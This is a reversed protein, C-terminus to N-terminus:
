ALADRKNERVYKIVVHRYPGEGVSETKVNPDTSLFSHVLMREYASMPSMEVDYQFLRAREALMRTKLRLEEIKHSHYGNVDLLFQVEEGEKAKADVMKKVLFNLARLSEGRPGILLRSDKSQVHFLAPMVTESVAIDEIEVGMRSLLESILNKIAATDM